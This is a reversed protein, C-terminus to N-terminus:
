HHHHAHEKGHWLGYLQWAVVPVILLSVAPDIWPVLTVATLIGGVIVLGNMWIDVIIHSLSAHHHADKHNEPATDRVWHQLLNAILGFGAVVGVAYGDALEPHQLRDIAGWLVPVICLGLSWIIIQKAWHEVFAVTGAWRRVLTLLLMTLIAASDTATHLADTLLSSSHGIHGVVVELLCFPIFLFFVITWRTTESQRRLWSTAGPAHRSIWRTM